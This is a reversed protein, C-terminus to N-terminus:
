SQESDWRASVIWGDELEGGNERLKLVEGVKAVQTPMFSVKTLNGKILLCLTYLQESM